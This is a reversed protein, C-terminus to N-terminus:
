NTGPVNVIESDANTASGAAFFAENTAVSWINDYGTRDSIFFVENSASWCPMVNVFWGGTLNARASGDAKMIWIDAFEPKEASDVAPPNFVTSFAVWNGDASWAPNIVAAVPSSILETTAGSGGNADDLDITWVSFFRDARERSRQFVLKNQSPHWEPFLGFTVFKKVAPRDFRTTWIEWRDSMEGMRCYALQNGDPSWTPHLEHASDNTIQIAQGGDTSMVYVDWSGARNSAFALKSGDPSLAPNIDHAPDTTLQVISTGDINKVYIDATPKHQTSAFYIHKANRSCIPDFDAGISTFSIQNINEVAEYPLSASHSGADANPLEGYMKFQPSTTMGSRGSYGAYTQPFIASPARNAHEFAADKQNASSYKNAHTSSCATMSIAATGLAIIAIAAKRHNAPM